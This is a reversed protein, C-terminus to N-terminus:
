NTAVRTRFVDENKGVERLVAAVLAAVAVVLDVALHDVLAVQIIQVMAIFAARAM